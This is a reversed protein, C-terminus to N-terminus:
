DILAATDFGISANLISYHLLDVDLVLWFKRILMSRQIKSWKSLRIKFTM